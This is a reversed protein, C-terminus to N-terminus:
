QQLHGDLADIMADAMGVCTKAIDAFVFDGKNREIMAYLAVRAFEERRTLSGVPVLVQKDPMDRNSVYNYM